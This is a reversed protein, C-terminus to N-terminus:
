TSSSIKFSYIVDLDLHKENTFGGYYKGNLLFDVQKNSSLKLLETASNGSFLDLTKEEGNNNFDLKLKIANTDQVPEPSSSSLLAINDSNNTVQVNMVGIEINKPSNNTIHYQPSKIAGMDTDLSVFETSIPVSVDLLDKSDLVTVTISKRTDSAFPPEIFLKYQGPKSDIGSDNSQVIPKVTDGKELTWGWANSKEIIFNNLEQKDKIYKEIEDSYVTFDKAYIACPSLSTLDGAVTDKDIVNIPISITIKEGGKDQLEVEATYYGIKSLDPVKTYKYSLSEKDEDEINKLVNMANEPLEEGLQLVQIVAEAKPPLNNDAVYAGATLNGTGYERMFDVPTYGASKGDERIWKKGVLGNSHYPVDLSCNDGIFKFNNGLTLHQLKLGGFAYNMNTVNSTDFSSLDLTTLSSAEAFMSSMDTVKSTDFGSLDLTTLSSSNWFMYKMDTVSSTDLNGLGIISELKPTFAFWQALSSVKVSVSGSFIISKVEGFDVNNWDGITTITGGTITLKQQQEDYIYAADGFIKQEIDAGYTGATLDGTGYERIFDVPTYGASKGDERLWKEGVLGNSHYPVDLFCYDGVFKFKNGLTLHQLKLGAFTYIMDDTESVNSTDFNSLDLTTLSSAYAFMFRMDTLRGTDFGSLDLTTLSSAHEFMYSMATVYSTDFNSLDLKTLSETSAFMRIMNTVKSTDFSSLDLTTLSRTENFMEAMNMVSSTDFNSLDLTKLSQDYAFMSAMNTVKSTDLNGLGTVSELASFDKFLGALSKTKVQIRDSRKLINITKVQTKDLTGWDSLDTIAGSTINLEHEQSNYTYQADGLIKQSAVYEGATLDDAVGYMQMFDTPNYEASQGDERIWKEGVSGNVLGNSHYPFELGADPKFKFKGGLTLHRLRLDVFTRDMHTVSSTDFSSLDLTTLSTANKFMSSMSTVKSTDFSSLDLTTLSTADEFMSGMNTVKSTDFSSLDLTTLSNLRAFMFLMNTVNSTDFSSLDLTTLSTADEFMSGMNTVNSTDFSSLDLTTLSTADEFMSGMNTVKSTDFSSLDLTTLSNLRAFMFLMNTVNSTDFSSLDLTTLSTADEFMSGMNTVNSTDFSSLDLTTLSTADEFMSGMNTVKSTDFSSLDLTTLSNLRAFMRGMNIVNSTDFSSVDLTTLSNLGAFMYSMDTVKSTDFSSVDLTTLSNLGAFMYSMDTVKSTDFKSVDLTKLSTDERFMDSMDTVKSTDLNDLGSVSELEHLSAFWKNLSPTKLVVPGTFSISKVENRSVDRWDGVNSVEGGTIKLEGTSGNFFYTANGFMEGSINLRESKMNSSSNRESITEVSNVTSKEKSIPVKKVKDKDPTSTDEIERSGETIADSQELENKDQKDKSSLTTEFNEKDEQSQSTEATLEDAYILPTTIDSISSLLLICIMSLSFIKKM